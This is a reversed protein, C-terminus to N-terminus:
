FVEPHERKLRQGFERSGELTFHGADFYLYQGQPSFVPCDLRPGCQVDLTSVYHVDPFAHAQFFAKLRRDIQTREPAQEGAAFANIGRARTIHRGQAQRSIALVSEAFMMKPGFVYIPAKTVGRIQQIVDTLGAEDYGGWHDHLYVADAAKLDPAALVAQLREACLAADAPSVPQRGFNFCEHATEILKIRGPYGNETLAYALDIAHSDGVILLQKGGSGPTLTIATKAQLDQWYRSREAMLEDQTLIAVPFRGPLGQQLLIYGPALVAIAAGAAAVGLAPRSRRSLLGRYGRELLAWSAWGLVLSGAVVGTAVLPTIAVRELKLFSVLPWHWLYVSYSILGVHVFPRTALLRSVLGPGFQPAALILAAGICPLLALAGPFASRSDLMVAAAMILALGVASAANSALRNATRPKWTFFALAGLMFEGVRGYPLFYAGKTTLFVGPQGYAFSGAALLTVLGLRLAPSRLRMLAVLAAPWVLYFQEELSLSWIHLLPFNAADPSFYGGTNWLFFVNALFGVASLASEALLSYDSPIMVLYGVALTALLTVYLAPLLRKARRVYFGAFSFRGGERQRVILATILFGSIVFFVDVGVFGGALGRVGAHCLVVLMVAVARLGDIDPRYDLERSVHGSRAARELESRDVEFL